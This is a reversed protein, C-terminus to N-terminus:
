PSQTTWRQCPEQLPQLSAARAAVGHSQGPRSAPVITQASSRQLAVPLRVGIASLANSSPLSTCTLSFAWAKRWVARLTQGM